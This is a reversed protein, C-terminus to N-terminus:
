GFLSTSIQKEPEPESAEEDVVPDPEFPPQDEEVVDEVQATAEVEPTQEVEEEAPTEEAKTETATTKSGEAKVWAVYEEIIATNVRMAGNARKFDAFAQIMKLDANNEVYAEAEALTDFCEGDVCFQQKIEM